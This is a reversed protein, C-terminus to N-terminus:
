VQTFELSPPVDAQKAKNRNKIQIAMLVVLALVILAIGALTFVKDTSSAVTVPSAVPAAGVDTPVTPVSPATDSGASGVEPLAPDELPPEAPIEPLKEGGTAVLSDEPPEEDTGAAVGEVDVTIPTSPEPKAVVAKVNRGSWYRLKLGPPLSAQTKVGENTAYIERWGEEYGLLRKGIRIIDDGKKTTYYSPPVQTDEYYTLIQKTDNPRKPSTYYIKDGASVGKRIEPNDATLERRYDAKFIKNSIEVLDEDPRVIYVTNLLRGNRYFADMKMKAVPVIEQAAQQSPILPNVETVLPDAKGLDEEPVLEENTTLVQFDEDKPITETSTIVGAQGGPPPSMPLQDPSTPVTAPPPVFTEEPYIPPSTGGASPVPAAPQSGGANIEGKLADEGLDDGGSLFAEDEDIEKEASKEDDKIDSAEANIEEELIAVDDSDNTSCSVAGMM